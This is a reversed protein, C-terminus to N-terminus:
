PGEAAEVSAPGTQMAFLELTSVSFLEVCILVISLHVPGQPARTFTGSRLAAARKSTSTAPEFGTGSWSYRGRTTRRTAITRSCLRTPCSLARLAAGFPHPGDRASYDQRRSGKDPDFTVTATKKDFDVTTSSVGPVRELANKVVITRSASRYEM